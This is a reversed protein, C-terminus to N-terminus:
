GNTASAASRAASRRPKAGAGLVVLLGGGALWWLASSAGGDFYLTARLHDAALRLPTWAYLWTKTAEPLFEPALNVIPMSFFMLLAALGVGPLGIWNLLASVTLLFAIGSLTLAAWANAA